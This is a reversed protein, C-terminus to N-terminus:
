LERRGSEAKAKAAVGLSISRAAQFIELPTLGLLKFAEMAPREQNMMEVQVHLVIRPEVRAPDVIAVDGRIVGEARLRRLRRLVASESLGVAEATMRAPELNNRRVRALIRHDFDDLDVFDTM